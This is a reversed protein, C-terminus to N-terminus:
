HDQTYYKQNEFYLENQLVDRNLVLDIVIVSRGDKSAYYWTDDFPVRLQEISLDDNTIVEMGLEIITNMKINTKVYEAATMLLNTLKGVSNERKVRDFMALMIDRQRQSRDFDGSASNRNRCHILAQTGDILYTGDSEPLKDEDRETQSNILQAEAKTLQVEVGGLIDVISVLGDFDILVYNQIDLDFNENITNILMGTGGYAFAANLRDWGHNPIYIWIDRLFSTLHIEKTERNYTLLMMVDSRGIKKENDSVDTGIVLVNLVNEEIVTQKFIAENVPMIVEPDIDSDIDYPVGQIPTLDPKELTLDENYSPKEIIEIEHKMPFYINYFVEVCSFLISLLLITFFFGILPKWKRKNTYKINM